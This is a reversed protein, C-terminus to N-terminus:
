YGTLPSRWQETSRRYRDTRLQEGPSIHRTLAQEWYAFADLLDRAECYPYEMVEQVLYGTSERLYYVLAQSHPGSLARIRVDKHQGKSKLPLFNLTVSPHRGRLVETWLPAYVKSFNVEEIACVDTRWRAALLVVADLVTVPDERLPVAELAYLRGWPDMGAVVIGNRAKPEKNFEVTNPPPAPDLLIVKNLYHLPVVNPPTEDSEIAAVKAKPNYSDREIVIATNGSGDAQAGAYRIWQHQFATQRGPWPINLMQASFTYPDTEYMQRAKAAPMKTPYISTGHVVDVKRTKEDELVSRMYIRYDGPWKNLTHSYPDAYGWRTFCFLECGGEVPRELSRANDLWHIADQMIAPSDASKEGVIDDKVVHTFHKGTSAGGIGYPEFTLEAVGRSDRPFLLGSDGWKWSKPITRGKERERFHVGPPLREPWLTHYLESSEVVERIAGVWRKSNLETENFIGITSEPDLTAQYLSRARTGVSTKLTGRPLILMLRRWGDDSWKALFDCVEMHLPAWLDRYGCIWECFLYFGLGSSRDEMVKRIDSLQPATLDRPRSATGAMEHLLSAVNPTTM